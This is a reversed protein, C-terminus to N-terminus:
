LFHSLCTSVPILKTLVEAKFDSRKVCSVVVPTVLAEILLKMERELQHPTTPILFRARRLRRCFTHIGVM